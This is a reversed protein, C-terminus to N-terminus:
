AGEEARPLSIAVRYGRAGDPGAELRFDGGYMRQLRQRTNSLGVGTTSAPPAGADRTNRVEVSLAADALVAVRVEVDAPAGTRAAGHVVANEILPQLLLPPVDCRRAAADGHIAFRLRPGFRVQQLKLYHSAFELEWALPVREQRSAEVVYRLLESLQALASTAAEHRAGRVLGAITHLANFLFHPELQARLM